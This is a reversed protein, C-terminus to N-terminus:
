WLTPAPITCVESNCLKIMPIIISLHHSHSVFSVAFQVLYFYNNTYQLLLGWLKNLISLSGYMSINWLATSWRSDACLHSKQPSPKPRCVVYQIELTRECIYFSTRPHLVFNWSNRPSITDCEKRNLESFLLLEVFNVSLCSLHESIQKSIIIQSLWIHRHM